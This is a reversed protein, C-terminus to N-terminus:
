EIIYQFGPVVLIDRRLFSEIKEKSPTILQENLILAEYSDKNVYKFGVDIFLENNVYGINEILLTIKSRKHLDKFDPRKESSFAFLKVRDVTRMSFDFNIGEQFLNRAWEVEVKLFTGKLWKGEKDLPSVNVVVGGEKNIKAESNVYDSLVKSMEGQQSITGKSLFVGKSCLDRVAGMNHSVFLVTRGKGTVEEMKGLSKKQFEADGVALVEDIILIEPELHAAVAFALRVKMGSSYHKVPIDIFKEVGSFAVIEDFKAKIERRKMGLITGNLYINERGSLEPHFGTGVELLSSVRGNIEFRGKTPETIRSLIKLLTSKGAGNSGIIGVAEGKKIEFDIDKLAWFEKSEGTQGNNIGRLKNIWSDFSERFDGSKAHGIQYCKGLNEVRVAIDSM